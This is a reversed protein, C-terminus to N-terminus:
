GYLERLGCAFEWEGMCSELAVHLGGSVWAVRGEGMCSELAAHLSGNM